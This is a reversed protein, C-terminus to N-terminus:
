QIKAMEELEKDNFLAKIELYEKAVAEYVKNAKISDTDYGFDGCFNEFTGVDYKQLCSLIDYANPAEFNENKHIEKSNSYNHIKKYEEKTFAWKGNTEKEIWIKNRLNEQVVYEGSHYISQGFNFKYSRSDRKITIEYIDRTEKDDSFHKDHKLFSVEIIAGTKALFDIAQQKYKSIEM